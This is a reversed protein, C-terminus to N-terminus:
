DETGVDDVDATQAVVAALALAMIAAVLHVGCMAVVSTGRRVVSM